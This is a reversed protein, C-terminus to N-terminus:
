QRPSTLAGAPTPVASPPLAAATAVDVLDRRKADAVRATFYWDDTHHCDELVLVTDGAELEIPRSQVQDSLRLREAGVARADLWLRVDDGSGTLELIATRRAASRITVAAYACVEEPGDPHRPDSGAFARQLDIQVTDSVFRQWAVDGFAGPGHAATLNRLDVRPETMAADYPFPGLVLWDTVFRKRELVETLFFEAAGGPGAVRRRIFYRSFLRLDSPRLAYLIHRDMAYQGFAGPDAVQYGCDHEVSWRYPDVRNYFLPFIQPQNTDTTTLMLADYRPRETEMDRILQRYGYQFGGYGSAAQRPYDVFYARLYHLLQFTFVGIAGLVAVSHVIPAVAGRRVLQQLWRWAAVLGRATLLCCAPAGIIGRSASPIETMLSPAVPYLALWWLLLWDSRQRQRAAVLVGVLLFPATIPLLEGFGPVAHRVIPDGSWFLFAPSLCALYNYGFEAAQASLGPTTSLMTTGLFYQTALDRHRYMFALAPGVTACLVAVAVTAERWRRRLATLYLGVFGLLFLPVFLDAIQYAYVCAGFFLMAAPLRRRGQTFRVLLTVAIVFFFPFAILEFAIRSFHLHWPCLALLAAACVGVAPEFWASGLYLLGAVTGVGFAASTLRVSFEDLGFLAVPVTAAYVFAPNKYSVDFSWFFLPFSEGNEDIGATAIAYANYGLGAEDCYLGAPVDKLDYLRLATALPVVALLSWRQLTRHPM